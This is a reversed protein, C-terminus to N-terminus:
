IIALCNPRQILTQQGERQQHEKPRTPHVLKKLVPACFFAALRGGWYHIDVSGLGSTTSAPGTFACM